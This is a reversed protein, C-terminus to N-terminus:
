QDQANEQVDADQPRDADDDQEDPKDEQDQTLGTAGNTSAFVPVSCEGEM